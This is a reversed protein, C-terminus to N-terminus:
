ASDAGDVKRSGRRAPAAKNAAAQHAAEVAALRRSAEGVEHRFQV